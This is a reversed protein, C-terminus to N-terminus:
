LRQYSYQGKIQTDLFEGKSDANLFDEFVDAPVNSYRYSAGTTFTVVLDTGDHGIKAIHSSDVTVMDM